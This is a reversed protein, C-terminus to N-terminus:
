NALCKVGNSASHWSAGLVTRRCRPRDETGAVRGSVLKPMAEIKSYALKM